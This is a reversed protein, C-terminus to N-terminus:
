SGGALFESQEQFAWPVQFFSLFHYRATPASTVRSLDSRRPLFVLSINLLRTALETARLTRTHLKLISPYAIASHAIQGASAPQPALCVPGLANRGFLPAPMNRKVVGSCATRAKSAM